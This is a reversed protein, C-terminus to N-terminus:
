DIEGNTPKDAVTNESVLNYLKEQFQPQDFM